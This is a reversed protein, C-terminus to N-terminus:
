LQGRCPLSLGLMGTGKSASRRQCDRQGGKCGAAVRCPRRRPAPAISVSHSRTVNAISRTTSVNTVDRRPALLADGASAVVLEVAGFGEVEAAAVVVQWMLRIKRSKRLAWEDVVGGRFM